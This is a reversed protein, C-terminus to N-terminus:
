SNIEYAGRVWDIHMNRATGQGDKIGIILGLPIGVPFITSDVTTEAVVVGDVYTFLTEKGDFRMGYKHFAASVLTAADDGLASANTVEALISVEAGADLQYVADISDTDADLWRFGVFSETILDGVNDAIANDVLFAKEGLGFVGGSDNAEMVLPAFRTEIWVSNGSGLVIQAFPQKILYAEDNDGGTTNLDLIGGLTGGSLVDVDANTGLLLWGDVSTDVVIGGLFDDHFWYGSGMDLIDSRNCDAWISPSPLSPHGATRYMVPKM